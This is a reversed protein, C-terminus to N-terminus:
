KLREGRETQGGQHWIAATAPKDGSSVFTIQADIEKLFFDREGEAFLELKDSGPPQVFLHDGERTIISTDTPSFRYRGVYRDLIAPSVAIEKHVKPVSLDVSQSPDLLHMGIDDAGFATEANVLAVVGVRAKLDYGLFARFGGVNGNKWAIERGNNVFINWALGTETSWPPMGGPRRTELMARMSPALASKKYGLFAELLKLLDNATSRLSAASELAGWDWHPVPILESSYGTALRDEMEATLDLRTNPMGLPETIRSRVLEAFGQDARRTLAQGLLGYGVNSYEYHSGSDNTPEFSGLFQNLLDVTYDAYKNKPDKSILNGPRLPLGSTHTALDALTIQRRNRAPAHVETPLYKSVPDDLAVERRQAMESLLLATFVKTISGIDFVTDGDVPRKNGIAMTGHAILRKGKPEIIGIVIGTARKQLDVRTVLMRHIESDSAVPAPTVAHVRPPVATLMLSAACVCIFVPATGVTVAAFGPSRILQRFAYRLDNLM